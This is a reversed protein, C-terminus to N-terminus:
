LTELLDIMDKDLLEAHDRNAFKFLIRYTTSLQRRIDEAARAMGNEYTKADSFLTGLNEMKARISKPIVRYGTSNIHLARKICPNFNGELFKLYNRLFTYIPMFGSNWSIDKQNWIYDSAMRRPFRVDELNDLIYNTRELFRDVYQIQSDIDSLGQEKMVETKLLIRCAMCRPRCLFSYDSIPYQTAAERFAEIPKASNSVIHYSLKDPHQYRKTLDYTIGAVLADVRNNISRDARINNLYNLVLKYVAENKSWGGKKGVVDDVPVITGHTKMEELVDLKRRFCETVRKEDALGLLSDLGGMRYYIQILKRDFEKSESPPKQILNYFDRVPEIKMVYHFSSLKDLAGSLNRLHNILEWVYPPLLCYKDQELKSFFTFFIYGLNNLDDKRSDEPTTIVHLLSYDVNFIPKINRKEENLYSQVSRLSNRFATLTHRLVHSSAIESRKREIVSIAKEM